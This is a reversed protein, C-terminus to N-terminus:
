ILFWEYKAIFGGSILGSINKLAQLNTKLSFYFMMMLRKKGNYVFTDPKWIKRLMEISLALANQGIILM